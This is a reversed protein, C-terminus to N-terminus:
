FVRLILEASPIIINDENKNNKLGVANSWRLPRSRRGVKESVTGPALFSSRNAVIICCKSAVTNKHELFDWTKELPVKM